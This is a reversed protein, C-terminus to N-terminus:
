SVLMLNGEFQRFPNGIQDVQVVSKQGYNGLTKSQCDLLVTTFAYCGDVNSGHFRRWLKSRGISM